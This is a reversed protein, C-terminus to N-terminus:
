GYRLFQTRSRGMRMKEDFIDRIFIFLRAVTMVARLSCRLLANLDYKVSLNRENSLSKLTITYYSSLHAGAAKLRVSANKNSWKDFIFIANIELPNRVLHPPATVNAHPSGRPLKVFISLSQKVPARRCAGPTESRSDDCSCGVM